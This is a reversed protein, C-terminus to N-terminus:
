IYKSEKYSVYMQENCSLDCSDNSVYKIKRGKWFELDNDKIYQTCM